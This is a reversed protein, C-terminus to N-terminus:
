CSNLLAIKLWSIAALKLSIIFQLARFLSFLFRQCLLRSDNSNVFWIKIQKTRTMPGASTDAITSHKIKIYNFCYLLGTTKILVVARSVCTGVPFALSFPTDLLLDGSWPLLKANIQSLQNHWESKCKPM